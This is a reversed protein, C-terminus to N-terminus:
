APILRVKRHSLLLAGNRVEENSGSVHMPRLMLSSLAAHNAVFLPKNDGHLTAYIVKQEDYRGGLISQVLDDLRKRELVGDLVIEFQREHNFSRERAVWIVDGVALPRQEVQIGKHQLARVLGERDKKSKVERNDLILIVDFTKPQMVHPTFPSFRRPYIRRRLRHPPEMGELDSKRRSLQRDTISDAIQGLGLTPPSPESSMRNNSVDQFQSRATAPPQLPARYEKVSDGAAAKRGLASAQSTSATSRAKDHTAFELMRHSVPKAVIPRPESDMESASAEGDSSM